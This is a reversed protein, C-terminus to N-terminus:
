KKKAIIMTGNGTTRTGFFDLVMILFNIPLLILYSLLAFINFLVNKTKIIWEMIALIEFMIAAATGFSYRQDEISFGADKIKQLISNDTYTQPRGISQDYDFGDKGSLLTYLSLNRRYNVPVYLLLRGNKSLADNFKKLVAVDDHIYMLVAVCLIIDQDPPIEINILDSQVFTVNSKKLTHALAECLKINSLSLDVGRINDNRNLESVTFIFDGMGCGADLINRPPSIKQLVSRFARRVYWTRLVTLGNVFYYAFLLRPFRFLISPAQQHNFYSSIRKTM